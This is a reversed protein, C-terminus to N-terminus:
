WRVAPRYKSSPSAGGISRASKDSEETEEERKKKTRERETASEAKRDEIKVGLEDRRSHSRTSFDSCRSPLPFTVIRTSTYKTNM